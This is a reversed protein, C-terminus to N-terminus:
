GLWFFTLEEDQYSLLVTLGVQVLFMVIIKQILQGHGGSKSSCRIEGELVHGKSTLGVQGVMTMLRSFKRIKLCRCMQMKIEASKEPQIQFNLTPRTARPNWEFAGDFDTPQQDTFFGKPERADIPRLETEGCVQCDILTPIEGGEAPADTPDLRVVAQCNNCLGIPTRNEEDLDPVFGSRSDVHNGAPYLEVVGCATHVAKDKVTESGPAFQSIAIDLDRDVLDHEPPWPNASNPWTTYLLRVRTPFGFMPLLGANALRESLADQTYQPDTTCETIEQIMETKLYHRMRQCFELATQTNGAWETGVRLADLVKNIIQETEPQDLWNQIYPKIECWQEAPGFEGHVSEQFRKEAEESLTELFNDPLKQFALRLIEKIFVRHFIPERAM